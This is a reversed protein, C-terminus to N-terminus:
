FTIIIEENNQLGVFTMTFTFWLPCMPEFKQCNKYIFSYHLWFKKQSFNGEKLSNWCAMHKYKINQLFFCLVDQCISTRNLNKYRSIKWSFSQQPLNELDCTEFIHSAWGVISENSNEECFVSCLIRWVNQCKKKYFSIKDVFTLLSAM